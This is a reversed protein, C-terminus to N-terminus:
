INSCEKTLLNWVELYHQWAEEANGGFEAVVPYCFLAASAKDGNVGFESLAHNTKLHDILFDAGDKKYYAEFACMGTWCRYYSIYEGIIAGLM